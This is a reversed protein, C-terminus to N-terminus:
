HCRTVHPESETAELPPVDYPTGPTPAIFEGVPIVGAASLVQLREVAQFRREPSLKFAGWHVGLSFQSQLESHAVVAEDPGMHQYAMFWRPLYAGIPLMAARMQGYRKHTERYHEGYGSDGGFYVPGGTTELVFGSWLSLNQDSPLVRRNSWHKVEVASLRCGNALEVDQWWDLEIVNDIGLPTLLTRNGLPVVFLPDHVKQLRRLSPFDMHDFHSHSIMVVDISPLEDFAIGPPHHRQPGAFSVPSARESWIPDTLLNLGDAQLLLTSHNVWTIRLEGRAMRPAPRPSPPLTDDRSWVIRERRLMYSLLDSFGHPFPDANHFRKGDFHDSVPGQYRAPSCGAFVVSVVALAMGALLSRVVM